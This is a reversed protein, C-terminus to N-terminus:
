CCPMSSPQLCNNKICKLKIKNQSRNTLTALNTFSDLDFFRIKCNVVSMVIVKGYDHLTSTGVIRPCMRTM